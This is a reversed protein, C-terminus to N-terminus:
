QNMLYDKFEQYDPGIRVARQRRMIADRAREPIDVRIGLEERIVEPFKGPHATEFFIGTFPDGMRARYAQLGLWGIAGHPESLYGFRHYLDRIAKRTAGDDFAFGAVDARIREADGGYLALIRTWNSPRSVDMANSITPVAPRERWVGTELFVPVADNINTAAIFRSVPLGMRRAILGATLNGFNGSPVSIVVPLGRQPARSWAWCYYFSQPILRAVNISNASSMELRARLESDVFASKVLRQCDDFSGDVELATVNGGAATLQAEQIASVRGRPFLIHVRIREVSRFGHAVASGTDGSTAVLIHLEKGSDSVFNSMLRAMFRAAFDKFALTPGWYLELVSTQNELTILPIEFDFSNRVINEIVTAPLDEGILSAAMAFAIERFELSSAHDYFAGPLADIQVPMYLGGDPALGRLVAERLGVTHRQDATSCYKM